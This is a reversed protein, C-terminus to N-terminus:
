TVVYSKMVFLPTCTLEIKIIYFYMNYNALRTFRIKGKGATLLEVTTGNIAELSLTM